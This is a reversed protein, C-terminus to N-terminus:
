YPKARNFTHCYDTHSLRRVLERTLTGGRTWPEITNEIKQPNGFSPLYQFRDIYHESAPEMSKFVGDFQGQILSSELDKLHLNNSGAGKFGASQYPRSFLQQINKLNTLPAYRLDTDYDVGCQYVNGHVKPWVQVQDLTCDTMVPEGCKRFFNTVKYDGTDISQRERVHVACPDDFVRSKKRWQPCTNDTRAGTNSM